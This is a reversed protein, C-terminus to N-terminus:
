MDRIWFRQNKDRFHEDIANFEPFAIERLWKLIDEVEIGEERREVETCNDHLTMLAELEKMLTIAKTLQEERMIGFEKARIRLNELYAAVSEGKDKDRSTKDVGLTKKLLRLERSYDTLARKLSEDDIAQGNYDCEQSLWIGWRWCMTEMAIVRDLDQLDSINTFKNQGQYRLAKDTYYDAEDPTLVTFRSGSPSTVEIEGSTSEDFYESM